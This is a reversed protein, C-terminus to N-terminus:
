RAARWGACSTPRRWRGWTSPMTPRSAWRSRGQTADGAVFVNDAHRSQLSPHVAAWRQPPVALGAQRLLPPPALGAAWLTLESRLRTGDALRVGRATVAAISTETRFNVAYPACLRRLDADLTAPLEPLLRPGAEVVEVSLGAAGRHRRLIEGLAEIGAIGAGAIVIRLPKDVKLLAQLRREIALADAVSRFPLAHRGVGPVHHTDWEAGVAM